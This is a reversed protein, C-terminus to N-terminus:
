VGGCTCGGRMIQVLDCTCRHTATPAVPKADDNFLEVSEVIDTNPMFRARGVVLWVLEPDSCVVYSLDGQETKNVKVVVLDGKDTVWDPHYRRGSNSVVAWRASGGVLCFLDGRKMDKRAVMKHAM